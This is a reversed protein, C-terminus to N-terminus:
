PSAVASTGAAYRWRPTPDGSFVERSEPEAPNSVQFLYGIEDELWEVARWELGYRGIPYWNLGNGFVFGRFVWGNLWMDYWCGHFFGAFGMFIGNLEWIVMLNLVNRARLRLTRECPPGFFVRANGFRPRMGAYPFM